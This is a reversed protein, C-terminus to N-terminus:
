LRRKEHIYSADLLEGAVELQHVAVRMELGDGAHERSLLDLRLRAGEGFVASDAANHKVVVGEAPHVVTV